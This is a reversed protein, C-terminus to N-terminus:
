VKEWERLIHGCPTSWLEISNRILASENTAETQEFRGILQALINHTAQVKTITLHTAHLERYLQLLLLQGYSRLRLLLLCQGTIIGGRHVGEIHCAYGTSNSNIIHM